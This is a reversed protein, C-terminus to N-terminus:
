STGLYGPTAYVLHKYQEIDERKFQGWGDYLLLKKDRQALVQPTILQTHKRHNNMILLVDVDSLASQIQDGVFRTKHDSDDLDKIVCDALTAKSPAPLRELISLAVSARTDSTEPEGKFALGLILVRLDALARNTQAAFLTMKRIISEVVQTNVKRGILGIHSDAISRELDYAFLLPDKDLCIGGVGPSPMAVQSRPYGENALRIVDRAVLNFRDCTLSIENALAFMTARYTNNILKILEAAELSDVVVVSHTLKRFLQEAMQISVKDFGGIIQPLTRLEKLANGEVTREPAFALHFDGGIRLGSSELIPIALMRCTGAPVTSRLIVLDGHKLQRAVQSLAENLPELNPYGAEDVPTGVSIMYIDAIPMQLNDILSLNAKVKPHRMLDDLDAEYFHPQGQRLGNLIERNVDFGLVDVGASALSVALTLGVFGLGVVAVTREDIPIDIIKRSPLVELFRNNEDVVVIFKYRDTSAGTSRLQVLLETRMRSRSDFRKICVPLRNSIGIAPDDLTAGRNLARRIDGDSVVGLLKMNEDVVVLFGPTTSSPLSMQKLADRITSKSSLM